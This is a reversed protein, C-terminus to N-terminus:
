ISSQRFTSSPGIDYGRNAQLELVATSRTLRAIQVHQSNISSKTLDKIDGAQRKGSELMEVLLRRKEKSMDLHACLEDYRGGVHQLQREVQLLEERARDIAEEKARKKARSQLTSTELEKVQNNAYAFPDRVGMEGQREVLSKRSETM